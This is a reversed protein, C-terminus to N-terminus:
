GKITSSQLLLLNLVMTGFDGKLGFASTCTQKLTFRLPTLGGRGVTTSSGCVGGLLWSRRQQPAFRTPDRTQAGRTRSCYVQQFRQGQDSCIGVDLHTSPPLIHPFGFVSDHGDKVCLYVVKEGQQQDKDTNKEGKKNPRM